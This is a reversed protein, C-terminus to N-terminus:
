ASSWRRPGRRRWADGERQPEGGIIARGDPREWVGLCPCPALHALWPTGRGRGSNAGGACRAAYGKALDANPTRRRSRWGSPAAPARACGARPHPHPRSIGPSTMGYTSEQWPSALDPFPSVRPESAWLSTPLRGPDRPPKAAHGRPPG